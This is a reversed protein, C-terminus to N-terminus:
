LVASHRTCFDINVESRLAILQKSAFSLVDPVSGQAASLAAVLDSRGPATPYPHPPSSSVASLRRRFDPYGNPYTCSSCTHVLNGTANVCSGFSADEDM